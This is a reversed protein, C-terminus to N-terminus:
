THSTAHPHPQPQPSHTTPQPSHATPQPSHTTSFALVLDPITHYWVQPESEGATSEGTMGSKDVVDVEIGPTDLLLEVM